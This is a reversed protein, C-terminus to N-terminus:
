FPLQSLEVNGGSLVIGVKKGSFTEKHELIAAVAVASSPEVVVKLRTWLLKMAELIGSESVTLIDDVHNKIIIFNVQGLTTRLGDAITKPEVDVVRQGSRFGRAADDAGAPEAGYVLTDARIGKAALVTGALLGGGGVPVIVIDLDPAQTMLELAATGQGAIIREDDYPPVFHAGTSQVVRALEHERAPLNPECEIITAGYAAVADKKVQPANSPMVVYAPIGRLKAAFALAAGHNGSSHTAVGLAADQANLLSVANCAGRAKFAGVKQLNECKFFCECGLSQDILQSTLVPTVHVLGQIREAAMKIHNFEM